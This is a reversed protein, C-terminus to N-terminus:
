DGDSTADTVETVTVELDNFILSIETKGDWEENYEKMKRRHRLEVLAIFLFSIAILHM